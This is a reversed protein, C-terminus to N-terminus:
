EGEVVKRSEAAAWGFIGKSMTSAEADVRMQNVRARAEHVKSNEWEALAALEVLYGALRLNGETAIEIAREALPEAGGALSAVEAAVERDPAPKLNAPNGDYWGGYLRWINRVVFEPEDYVPKLYPKNLLEEPARVSHIIEDLRAGRNMLELTQELLSELLLAAEELAQKIRDGGAIPLGHGPLLLEAEMTSMARLAISWDKPYRQVKQPNGANPSTWIFFDGSCLLKHRPVWVWTHDDTEGKGHHLEFRTEGVELVLERRYVEDPYRYQTPWQGQYRRFQRQNIVTNYGATEKYRDFRRVVGSHAVVRPRDWGKEDAERDFPGVGSVHDIHGHTYVVTHVRADSWSRVQGHIQDALMQNGTDVLVLGEGTKIVSV